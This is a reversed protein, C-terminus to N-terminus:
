VSAVWADSLAGEFIAAVAWQNIPRVDYTFFSMGPSIAQPVAAANTRAEASGGISQLYTTVAQQSAQQTVMQASKTLLPVLYLLTIQYFRAGSYLLGMCGTPDYSADGNELAARWTSTSNPYVVMAGWHHSHGVHEFVQSPGNPFDSAPLIDFGLHPVSSPLKNTEMATRVLAPGLIAQSGIVPSEFDVVAITLQKKDLILKCGANQLSM